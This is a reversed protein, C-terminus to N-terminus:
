VGKHYNCDLFDATSPRSQPDSIHQTVQVQVLRDGYWLVMTRGMRSISQISQTETGKTILAAENRQRRTSLLSLQHVTERDKIHVAIINSSANIM